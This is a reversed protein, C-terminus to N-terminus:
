GAVGGHGQKWVAGGILGVRSVGVRAMIGSEYKVYKNKKNYKNKLKNDQTDSGM